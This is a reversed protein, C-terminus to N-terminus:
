RNIKLLVFVLALSTRLLQAGVFIFFRSASAALHASIVSMNAAPAAAAEVDVPSYFDATHIHTHAKTVHPTFSQRCHPHTYIMNFNAIISHFFSMECASLVRTHKLAQYGM